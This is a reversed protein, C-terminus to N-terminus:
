ELSLLNWGALYSNGQFDDVNESTQMWVIDGTSVLVLDNIGEPADPFFSSWTQDNNDYHWVSQLTGSDILDAFVENTPRTVIDLIDVFTVVVVDSGVTHVRLEVNHTGVTLQPVLLVKEYRGFGDSADDDGIARGAVTLGGITLTVPTFLPLNEAKITLRQGSSVEDPSVTLIEEPVTHIAEANLSVTNQGTVVRPQGTGKKESQAVVEYERGITADVPVKFTARWKGVTDTTAVTVPDAGYTIGVVDEAPFNEGIVTVTTGRQSSEPDLTIAPKPITIEGQGVRNLADTIVVPYPDESPKLNHPVKFSNSLTGDSDTNVCDSVNGIRVRDGTTARLIREDGVSISVICQTPGFGSGEIRIVQDTVATSPTIELDFVGVDVTQTHKDLSSMTGQKVTTTGSVVVEMTGLRARRPVVVTLPVSTPPSQESWRISAEPDNPDPLDVQIGNVRLDTLNGYYWDSVSVEMRGTRRVETLDLDVTPQLGLRTYGTVNGGADVVILINTGMANDDSTADQAGAHFISSSTDFDLVATGADRLSRDLAPLDAFNIGTLPNTERMLGEELAEELEMINDIDYTSTAFVDDRNRMNLLHVTADGPANIGKATVTVTDGREAWGSEPETVSIHSTIDYKRDLGSDDPSVTITNTGKANPTKIGAEKLFVVRYDGPTVRASTRSGDDNRLPVRLTITSGSIAVSDPNGYYSNARLGDPDGDIIVNERDISAPIQFGKMTVQINTGGDIGDDTMLGEFELEVGTDAKFTGRTTAGTVTLDAMGPAFMDQTVIIADEVVGAESPNTVDTIEVMVKGVNRGLTSGGTPATKMINDANDATDKMITITNGDVMVNGGVDEPDGRRTLKQMVTIESDSSLSFADDLEIEIMSDNMTGLDLISGFEFSLTVEDAGASDPDIMAEEVDVLDMDTIHFSRKLTETTTGQRFTVEHKMSPSPNTLGTITVLVDRDAAFGTVTIANSADDYTATVGAPTIEIDLGVDIGYETNPPTATTDSGADNAPDVDLDYAAPLTIVVTGDASPSDAVFELEMTVPAGAAYSGMTDDTSELMVLAEVVSAGIAGAFTQSATGDANAAQHFEVSYTGAAATTLDIITIVTPVGPMLNKSSDSPHATIRITNNASIFVMGVPNGNQTVTVKTPDATNNDATTTADNDPGDADAYDAQTVSTSLGAPIEVFVDNATDGDVEENTTFTITATAEKDPRSDTLEVSPKESGGKIGADVVAPAFVGMAFLAALLGAALFLAIGVSKGAQTNM